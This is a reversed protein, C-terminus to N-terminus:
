RMQFVRDVPGLLALVSKVNWISVLTVTIKVFVDAKVSQQVIWVSEQLIM